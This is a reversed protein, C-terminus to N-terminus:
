DCTSALRFSARQLAQAVRVRRAGRRTVINAVMLYSVFDKCYVRVFITLVVLGRLRFTSILSVCQADSAVLIASHSADAGTQAVHDNQSFLFTNLYLANDSNAQDAYQVIYM